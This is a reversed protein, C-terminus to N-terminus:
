SKLSISGLITTGSGAASRITLKGGLAGIRDTMNQVGVSGRAVATDYGQGDDAVEFLLSRGREALEIKAKAGEGAHKAANQLAELCCFYVAAELEPPYRGAGDCRLETPIAAREVAERLAGPLGENELVAPYIGHALDRLESLAESLDARLEDHMATAAGPDKGILRAAMGLKLGLLVLQQQAGDHLDREVRRRESDAAAVVRARSARLEEARLQLDALSAQLASTLELNDNRLAERERLGRVMDNFSTTLVGLEDDSTVPVPHELDGAAARATASTLTRVPGVVSDTVARILVPTFTLAILGAIAVAGLMRSTPSHGISGIAQSMLVAFSTTVALALLVKQRIRVQPRRVGEAAPVVRAADEVMPRLMAEGVFFMYVATVAIGLQTFIWAVPFGSSGLHYHGVAWVVAPVLLVSVLVFCRPLARRIVTVGARWAVSAADERRGDRIWGVLPRADRWILAFPVGCGVAIAAEVMLLLVLPPRFSQALLRTAVVASLLGGALALFGLWVLVVSVYGTGFRAYLRDVVGPSVRERTSEGSLSGEAAGTKRVSKPILSEAALGEDSFTPPMRMDVVAADPRLGGVRRVLDDANDAQALVEFEQESLLRVLGERFLLSDDAVVLRV